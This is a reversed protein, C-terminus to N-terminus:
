NDLESLQMFNLANFGDFEDDVKEIIEECFGAEELQDGLSKDLGKCGFKTRESKHVFKEGNSFELTEICGYDTTEISYKM